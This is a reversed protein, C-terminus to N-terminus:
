SLVETQTLAINKTSPEEDHVKKTVEIYKIHHEEM